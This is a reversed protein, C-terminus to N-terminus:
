VLNELTHTILRDITHSPDKSFEGNARNALIASLSAAQHGMLGALGLIGATEMEMNTIRLNDFRFEMMRSLWDPQQIPLRLRRGQPAYFGPNTATMGRFVERTGLRDTLGPDPAVVYPVAKMVSWQIAELFRYQIDARQLHESEYYHLLGDFGIAYQSIVFSDVPIDEQIAGSTGIRVLRLRTTADKPRRTEFDINFIADLENLVIDINDTGIGTSVVSLRQKGLTGTHTTFERKSGTFEISDFHRSVQPVREPDGVLIITEAIDGPRLNLHYVSRDANLILESPELSM